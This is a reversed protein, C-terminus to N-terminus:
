PTGEELLQELLPLAETLLSQETPTLAAVRQALYADRRTRSRLLFQEGTPTLAVRVYRRDAADTTRTVFGAEELRAVIRTMSPPQIREATALEGLTAAGLKELSAMASIQSPTVDDVAM